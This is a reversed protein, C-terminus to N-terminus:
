LAINFQKIRRNLTSLSVGLNAAAVKKVGAADVLADMTDKAVGSAAPVKEEKAAAKKAAAKKAAVKKVTKKIFEINAAEKEADVVPKAVPKAVKKVAKKAPKVTDKGLTVVVGCAADYFDLDHWRCTSGFFEGALTQRVKRTTPKEATSNKGEVTSESVDLIDKRKLMTMTGGIVRFDIDPFQCCIEDAFGFEGATCAEANLCLAKLVELELQTLKASNSGATITLKKDQLTIASKM